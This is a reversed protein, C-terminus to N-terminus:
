EDSSTNSTLVENITEATYYVRRGVKVPKLVGADRWNDLTKVTVDFLEATETKTLLKKGTM